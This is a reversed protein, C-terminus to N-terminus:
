TLCIPDCDCTAVSTIVLSLYKYELIINAPHMNWTIFDVTKLEM